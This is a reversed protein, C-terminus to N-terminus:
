TAGSPLTCLDGSNQMEGNQNRVCDECDVAVGRKECLKKGLFSIM